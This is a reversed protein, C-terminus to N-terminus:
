LVRLTWAESGGQRCHSPYGRTSGNAVGDRQVSDHADASVCHGQTVDGKDQVTLFYLGLAVHLSLLGTRKEEKEEEVKDHPTISYSLQM